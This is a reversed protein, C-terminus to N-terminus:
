NLQLELASGSETVGLRAGILKLGTTRIVGDPVIFFLMGRRSEGMALPAGTDLLYAAFDERSKKYGSKSYTSIGYYKILQGFARKADAAKYAHGDSTRLEFRAKHLDLPQATQNVVTVNVPLVSAMVLNADFTALLFDEDRVAAAQMRVGATQATPADALPPLTVESKVSFPKGGGCGVFLLLSLGITIAALLHIRRKM